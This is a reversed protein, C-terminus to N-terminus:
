KVGLEIILTGPKDVYNVCYYTKNAPLTQVKIREGNYVASYKGAVGFAQQFMINEAIEVIARDRFHSNGTPTYDYRFVQIYKLRSKTTEAKLTDLYKTAQKVTLM